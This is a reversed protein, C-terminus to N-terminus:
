AQRPHAARARALDISEHGAVLLAVETPDGLSTKWDSSSSPTTASCEPWCFSARRTTPWGRVPERHAPQTDPHRDQRHRDGDHQKRTEVAPLHRVIAKRGAMRQVGIALAITVVAPLGEPVAAVALSIAAVVADGAPFGRVAAAVALLVAAVGIAVTIM